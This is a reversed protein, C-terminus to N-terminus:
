IEGGWLVNLPGWCTGAKRNEEFTKFDVTRVAGDIAVGEITALVTDSTHWTDGGKLEQCLLYYSTRPALIIPQGFVGYVFGMEDKSEKVGAAVAAVVAKDDARVIRMAHNDLQAAGRYRGMKYVVVPKEGVTIRMGQWGSWDNQSDKSLTVSTVLSQEARYEYKINIGVAAYGPQTKEEFNQLDAAVVPGDIVFDNTTSLKVGGELGRKAGLTEKLLFYYSEHPSLEVRTVGYKFGMADPRGLGLNIKSSAALVQRDRVRVVWLDVLGAGGDPCQVGIEKVTLGRDGVTVKMGAYFNAQPAKEVVMSRLPTEDAYRYMFNVGVFGVNPDAWSHSLDFDDFWVQGVVAADKTTEAMVPADQGADVENEQSLVYYVTNAELIAETLGYKFGLADIYDDEARVVTRAVLKRGEQRIIRMPHSTTNDPLWYRGVAMVQLPRDGTKVMMGAWRSQKKAAGVLKLNTVMSRTSRDFLPHSVDPTPTKGIYIRGLPYKGYLNPNPEDKGAIALNMAPQDTYDVMAIKLTYWGSPLEGPISFRSEIAYPGGMFWGTADFASDTNLEYVREENQLYAKLHYYNEYLRAVGKQHWKQRLSFTEGPLVRQPYAAEGLVLRYGCRKQFYEELTEGSISEIQNLAGSGSTAGAQYWGLYSAHFDLAMKLAQETNMGSPMTYLSGDISGWEAHFKRKQYHDKLFQLEHPATAEPWGMCRRVMMAGADEVAYFVGHDRLDKDEHWGVIDKALMPTPVRDRPFARVYFDIMQRLTRRKTEEDPWKMESHWEGWYGYTSIDIRELYQQWLPSQYYHEGFAQFFKGLKELFFPNWYEPEFKRECSIGYFNDYWRGTMRSDEYVWQPIHIPGPISQPDTLHMGLHVKKNRRPDAWFKIFNDILDWRYDGEFNPELDRWTFYNCYIASSYVTENVVGPTATPNSYNYMLWGMGPNKFARDIEAPCVTVQQGSGALCFSSLGLFVVFFICGLLVKNKMDM